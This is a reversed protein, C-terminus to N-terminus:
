PTAEGLYDMGGDDDERAGEILELSWEPLHWKFDKWIVRPHPKEKFERLLTARASNSPDDSVSKWGGQLMGDVLERNSLPKGVTGLYKVAADIIGLKRFAKPNITPTPHAPVNDSLTMLSKLGAITTKLAQKKQEIRRQLRLQEAEIQSLEGELEVITAKYDISM